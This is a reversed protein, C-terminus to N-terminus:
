EEDEPEEELKAIRKKYSVLALQLLAFTAIWTLIFGAAGVMVCTMPYQPFDKLKVLLTIVGVAVGAVLSYLVNSKTTPEVTRSWIGEKLTAYLTYICMIMFVTWEGAMARMDTEDIFFQVVMVALLGIFAIWYGRSEIKKMAMEQREDLNNKLKM